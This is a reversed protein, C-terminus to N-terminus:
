HARAAWEAQREDLHVRFEGIAQPLSPHVASSYDIGDCGVIRVAEFPPFGDDDIWDSGTEDSSVLQDDAGYDRSALGRLARSTCDVEMDVDGRISDYGEMATPYVAVLTMFARGEERRISGEAILWATDHQSIIYIAPGDNWSPLTQLVLAAALAAIM